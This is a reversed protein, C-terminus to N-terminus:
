LRRRAIMMYNIRESPTLSFRRTVPNVRIGTRDLVDFGHMALLSQIERPRLFRSWRHTGRPLWRLIYEAGIIASVYSVLTRNITAVAMVGGPRVLACCDGLFGAVDAVHEVVEMNLVVDFECRAEALQSVTALRYDIDLGRQRAHISAARINKEVVDVGTVAAGREAMSESLLGGGCGVDLIRIGDLPRDPANYFYGGLSAGLYDARLKNLRHLPWFPGHADWWREALAEYFRVEEPNVSSDLPPASARGPHFLRDETIGATTQLENM